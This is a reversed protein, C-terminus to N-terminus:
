VHSLETPIAVVVPQVTRPNFGPPPSIERVGGSRSQPGGLRRHSPYQTEKGPTFQPRPTANVVWM